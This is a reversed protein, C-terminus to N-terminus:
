RVVGRMITGDVEFFITQGDGAMAPTREITDKTDTLRITTQTAIEYLFLDSAIIRHGDDQTREFVIAKDNRAFRANSGSGIDVLRNSGVKWLYIHGDLCHVLYLDEHNSRRPLFFVKSESGTERELEHFLSDFMRIRGAPECFIIEDFLGQPNPGATKIRPRQDWLAFYVNDEVWIPLSLSDLLPTAVEIVGDTHGICMIQRAAEKGLTARFAILGDNSWEFGFGAGRLNTLERHEGTELDFLYLGKYGERTYALYRGDPSPLPAALMAEDPIRVEEIYQIANHVRNHPQAWVLHASVIFLFLIVCSLFLIRRM